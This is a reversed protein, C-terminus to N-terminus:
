NKKLFLSLEEENENGGPQDKFDPDCHAYIAINARLCSKYIQSVGM